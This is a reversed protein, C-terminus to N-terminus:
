PIGLGLSTDVCTCSRYGYQGFGFRKVYFDILAGDLPVREATLTSTTLVDVLHLRSNTCSVHPLIGVCANFFLNQYLTCFCAILGLVLFASQSSQTGEDVVALMLLIDVVYGASALCHHRCAVTACLNSGVVIRLSADGVMADVVGYIIESCEHIAVDLVTDVM